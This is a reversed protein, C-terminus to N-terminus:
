VFWDPGRAAWMSKRFNCHLPPWVAEHNSSSVPGILSQMVPSSTCILGGSAWCFHRRRLCHAIIFVNTTWICFYPCNSCVCSNKPLFHRKLRNKIGDIWQLACWSPAVYRSESIPQLPNDTLGVISTPPQLDLSIRTALCFTHDRSWSPRWAIPLNHKCANNPHTQTHTLSWIM